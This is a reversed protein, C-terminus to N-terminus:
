LLKVHINIANNYLKFFYQNIVKFINDNKTWINIYKQM